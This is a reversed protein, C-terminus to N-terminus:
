IAYPMGISIYVGECAGQVAGSPLKGLATEGLSSVTCMCVWDTVETSRRFNGGTVHVWLANRYWYALM